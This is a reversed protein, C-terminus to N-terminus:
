GRIVEHLCLINGEPDAFWAARDKGITAIHGVTRLEGSSFDQFEVGRRALEAVEAEINSVEFSLVTHESPRADPLPRLGIASGQSAEFFCTGDPGTPLKPLGLTESYFRSARQADRVPLMATIPSSSLM